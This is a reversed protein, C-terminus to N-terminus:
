FPLNDIEDQQVEQAKEQKKKEDIYVILDPQKEETKFGNEFIIIQSDGLYGKFYIKGDKTKGKWLSTLKIM